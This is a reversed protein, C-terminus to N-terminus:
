NEKGKEKIVTVTTEALTRNGAHDIAEYVITYIREKLGGKVEARLMFEFDPTGFEAEQIDARQHGEHKDEDSSTISVLNIVAVGSLDDEASATVKIAELKNGRPYLVPKDVSLTLQPPTQDIQEQTNFQITYKRESGDQATVTILAQRSDADAQIIDVKAYASRVAAELLPVDEGAGVTVEYSLRNVDFEPLPQGGIIISSLATDGDPVAIMSAPNWGDDGSLIHEPTLLSAEEYTLQTSWAYRASPNAGPGYSAFEGYRATLENTPNRWNDWGTPEIHDGLESNIVYVNSYPRWPRGLPVTGTLGPEATFRSNLFVYGLKDEPTSAATVYGDNLSHIVSNEFVVTAGGFIFDVDGEIYSDVFYQRGDNAYFTDQYGKLNVERFTMRDGKTYLAVAQGADDGADNMITLREASYDNALVKFGSSNSTGMPLGDAGPTNASDGYVLVTGERSEGIMRINPKTAPLVLKERYTGNKIYIIMQSTNQDPVANIAEQVTQYDGSGDLAVTISRAPIDSVPLSAASEVGGIVASVIYYYSEGNTLGTDTFSTETLGDAITLYSGDESSSRKVSYTDAGALPEWKLTLRENSPVIMVGQPGAPPSGESEQPKVVVVKSGLSRSDQNKAIVQYYYPKGSIVNTDTYSTSEAIGLEEFPGDAYVARQVSYNEAADVASWSILAGQSISEGTIEPTRLQLVPKVQVPESDPGEGAVSSASVTYYYVQGNVLGSDRYSSGSIKSAVMEFPGTMTQSRKVTYTVAQTLPEWNLDIQGSRAAATLGSPADPKVASASPLATAQNSLGSEGAPGTATVVYYYNVENKVTEDVYSFETLGKALIEYPGGDKQSRKVTYSAAGAAPQWELQVKGNGPLAKLGKPSAVPENYVKLNDYYITGKGSGPMKGMIRSIGSARVDAQLPVDDASLVHDIYIDATQATIDVAVKVNYWRNNEPRDALKYDAGSRKYVFTDTGEAAPQTPKRIEISLPIKTGTEDQLQLLVSTGPWSESMVDAEVVFAGTQKTFQRTFQTNVPANDYVKLSKASSNGTSSAPTNVVTVTHDADQPDPLVVYGAPTAGLEVEEFNDDVVHITGVSGTPIASVESSRFSEGSANVTTLVYYYALGSTLGTHLYSSGTVASAVQEYPGGPITSSYIHYSEAQPVENWSLKVQQDGAETKIGTPAVPYDAKLDKVEAGTFRSTNYKLVEDNAKSADAALGYYVKENMPLTITDFQTWEIGDKSTLATIKDDLRMLKVWYPTNVFAEPEKTVANKGSATRSILVTKKGEKVYPIMLAAMKSGPELSERIMVGAEAENDTGTIHEIKAIIEGNGVLEQYAFHFADAPGGIDGASKLTVESSDAGIQLHGAIGPNGIDKSVWPETNGETNAHITVKDSQAATGTNDIARATMYFTGDPIDKWEFSYPEAKDEGLLQDGQYFEVRDISGDPDIAEAAITVSDGATIITHHTPSNITVVPSVSGSSVIGNLYVELNTYGSQQTGNRDSPDNPNLGQQTEWVNPMGDRDDDALDSKVSAFEPYGGVEKQSNIHEGTREATDRIIRADVSDRRPLVAGAGELVSEYADTATEPASPNPMVIPTNLKSAPNRVIPVGKWNDSTVEESGDVYNGGIYIKSGEHVEQFINDRVTRYTNPGYKYYNDRINYQGVEGGYTSFFGWNYIVNNYFDVNDEPSKGPLRPNRSANHAILNHHFSANKGGWIGGYGHRGKFHTTMLMSESVISWQITTNENDYVSLVEDVSWSFSCHDIIINKHYRGGFADDENVYRDGLRFRLYRIILNDGAFSTTYDSITIGEGPATQGAITLNSGTIKLPSELHITGGVEFVITANSKAVAERLSGPGSDKLTTVYVTEGGRGGTTYMGGGEAGPFAPLAPAESSVDSTAAAAPQMSAILSLVLLLVGLKKMM